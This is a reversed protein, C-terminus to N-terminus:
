LYNMFNVDNLLNMRIVQTFSKGFSCLSKKLATDVSSPLRKVTKEFIEVAKRYGTPDKDIRAMVKETLAAVTEKFKSKIDDPVVDYMKMHQLLLGLLM